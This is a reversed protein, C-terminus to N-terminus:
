KAEEIYKAIEYGEISQPYKDKVTNFADLAGQRDGLKLCVQGAKVLYSAAFMNDAAAVAKRYFKLAAAYDELASYCDGRLALARASLIKDKGKYKSLYDIADQWNGLQAACAGAYLYVSAGAKAGYSDIVDAFGPNNGDGNLALEFEGQRFAMEAPFAAAQAEKVSPTYVWKGYALVGLAVVVVACVVAWITKKHANYFEDSKSVSAIVEEQRLIEEKTTKNTSM